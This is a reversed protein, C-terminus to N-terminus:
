NTEAAQAARLVALVAEIRALIPCDDNEHVFSQQSVQGASGGIFICRAHCGPCEVLTVGGALYSINMLSVGPLMIVTIPASDAM